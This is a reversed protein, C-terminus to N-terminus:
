KKFGTRYFLYDLHSRSIRLITPRGHPCRSPEKCKSLEILIETITNQTLYDNRKFSAKCATMAVYEEYLQLNTIGKILKNILKILNEKETGVEIYSPVEKIAVSTKTILDFGFGLKIIEEKKEFLEDIQELSLDLVIPELLYQSSTGQLEIQNKIKEYNIREHATHQDILYFEEESSALIYTGFLVGYFKSPFFSSKKEDLIETLNKTASYIFEKEKIELPKNLANSFLEETPYLISKKNKLNIDFSPKKIEESISIPVNPILTKRIAETTYQFIQNEEYIRIEKKTPHVNVDIQEPPVRYYLFFIPNSNQPLLEGYASKIIFSLNKIEVPRNNFYLIQKNFIKRDVRPKGIWGQILIQNKQFYLPLLLDSFSKGFILNMREPLNEFEVPLLQFVKEGDRIYLFEINPQSLSYKTIEKLIDRDETQTSKLYKKRAPTSFFLDEIIIKTGQNCPYQKISLIEGGRSILQYGVNEEKHKTQIELFSISAISSLAEGRFGYSLIKDIDQITRIKSTAHKEITLPLDERLIGEGNDKIEIKKKGGEYTSIEIRKANADISNELLEKVISAPREIVEGAAIRDIIIPDLKKIIGM